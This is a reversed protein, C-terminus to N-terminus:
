IPCILSNNHESCPFRKLSLPILQNLSKPGEKLLGALQQCLRDLLDMMAFTTMLQSFSQTPKSM